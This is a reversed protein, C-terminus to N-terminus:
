QPDYNVRVVAMCGQSPFSEPVCELTYLFNEDAGGGSGDARVAVHVPWHGPMKELAERLENVTMM